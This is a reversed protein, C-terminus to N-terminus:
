RAAGLRFTDINYSTGWYNGGFGCVLYPEGVSGSAFTIDRVELPSGSSYLAELAQGLDFRASHWNHDAVVGEIKGLRRVHPPFSDSASFVIAHDRGNIRMHINLKVEPPLRYHFSLVPADAIRVPGPVAVVGFAGGTTANTIRLSRRGDTRTSSDLSLVVRSDFPAPRWQGIDGEFDNHIPLPTPPAIGPAPIDIPVVPEGHPRLQPLAAIEGGDAYSIRARAIILGNNNNSWLAVHGGQLVDRDDFEAVLRGDVHYSIHSGRKEIRSYFWHRHFNTNNSRPNIFRMSENKAILRSKRMIMSATNNLGAYIFSYGSSVDRGNGCITVNIDSPHSYGPSRPLDMVMAAYLEVTVDGTFARKSWLIPVVDRTGALWAWGRQCPWRDTTAWTGRQAYWDTPAQSFTYDCVHTSRVQARTLRVYASQVQLGVRVARLPSPDKAQCIINDNVAVFLHPGRRGFRLANEGDPAMEATGACLETGARTLRLDFTGPGPGPTLALRYADNLADPDSCLVVSLNTSETLTPLLMSLEVDGYFTRKTLYLRPQQGRVYMWESLPGAWNAMTAEAAFQETIPPTEPAPDVFWVVVNDFSAGSPGESFLGVQGTPSTPELADLVLDNDIYACLYGRDTAIKLRHRKAPRHPVNAKALSTISGGHVQYIEAARSAPDWIFAYYDADNHYGFCLGVAGRGAPRVDAAFVYDHWDERGAVATCATQPHDAGAVRLVGNGARWQGSVAQWASGDNSAFDDGFSEYSHVDVDDFIAAGGEAYLGIGGQSLPAKRARLALQGDVFAQLDAWQTRVTLKYWQGPEYGGPKEALVHREGDRVAILEMAGAPGATWRFLLYNGSGTVCCALGTATAGDPKVSASFEYSDWFWYGATSLAFDDATGRFAFANANRSAYQQASPIGTSRWEGQVPEWNASRGGERVFDDELLIPATEQLAVDELTLEPSAASTAARGGAYEDDFAIAAVGAGCIVAMRWQRRKIAFYVDEGLKGPKIGMHRGIRKAEGDAVKFLHVADATLRAYYHRQADLYNFVIRVEAGARWGNKAIIRGELAFDGELTEELFRLEQGAGQAVAAPLRGFAFAGACVLLSAALVVRMLM